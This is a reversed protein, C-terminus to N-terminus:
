QIDSFGGHQLTVGMRYPYILVDTSYFVSKKHGRFFNDGPEYKQFGQLPCKRSDAMIQKM